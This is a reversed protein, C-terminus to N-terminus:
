VVVMSPLNAKLGHVSCSKRVPRSGQHFHNRAQLRAKGARQLSCLQLTLATKQKCNFRLYGSSMSSM